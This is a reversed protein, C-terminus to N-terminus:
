RTARFSELNEYRRKMMRRYIDSIWLRHLLIVVLGIAIIALAGATEGLLPPLIFILLLPLFFAALEVAIQIFSNEMSGKGIFKTNLPMTQKNIVATYLLIAHVPGATIFLLAILMLPSCKGMIATPLMLLLPLLLLASYFFYKAKLLAIINERRVMICDIYNGEYCMAKVLIIAGYIAFNYVALFKTMGGAYVDTFSILLSFMVILINASIFSKRINKNRMISKVELKLYEGLIGFRELSSLNSVHKIKTEETHSLEAYISDFQLKRNMALLLVLVALIIVFVIPSWHSAGEGIVSYMECLQTVGAKSGIYLPSLMLAHFSLPLIWWYFSRNILTRVFMYWLSDAVIILHMALLFGITSWFGEVFVISMISYPIFLAMWVLNGLSTASNFLFSDICAYKGLPLLIYPKIQQSPTQQILFRSYFDVILLFPLLGSLLECATYRSSSNAILSFMVAFFMLYLIMISFFVYGMVKAIKNQALAVHRKESLKNHRRLTKIIEWCSLRSKLAM